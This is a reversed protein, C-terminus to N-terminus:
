KMIQPLSFFFSLVILEMRLGLLCYIGLARFLVNVRSSIPFSTSVEGAAQEPHKPVSKIISQTFFDAVEPKL